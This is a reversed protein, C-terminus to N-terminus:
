GGPTLLEPYGGMVLGYTVLALAAIGASAAFFRRHLSLPLRDGRSRSGILPWLGSISLAASCPLMLPVTQGEVADGALLVGYLLAAGYLVWPASRGPDPVPYAAPDGSASHFIFLGALLLFSLHLERHGWHEDLYYILNWGSATPESAAAIANAALLIAHGQVLLLLSVAFVAGVWPSQLLRAEIALGVYLVVLLFVLGADALDKLGLGLLEPQSPLLVPLLDVLAYGAAFVVIGRFGTRRRDPRDASGDVPDVSRTLQQGGM